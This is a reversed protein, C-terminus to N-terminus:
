GKVSSNGKREVFRGQKLVDPLKLKSALAELIELLSSNDSVVIEACELKNVASVITVVVLEPNKPSAKAKERRRERDAVVCPALVISQQRNKTIVAHSEGLLSSCAMSTDVGMMHLVTRAGVLEHDEGM